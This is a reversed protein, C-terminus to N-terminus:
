YEYTLRPVGDEQWRVAHKARPIPTERIGSRDEEAWRKQRAIWRDYLEFDPVTKWVARMNTYRQLDKCRRWHRFFQEELTLHTGYHALTHPNKVYFEPILEGHIPEYVMVYPYAGLERLISVRRMDEEVTSDFGALIFSAIERRKVGANVLHAFGRRYVAEIKPSDFAFTIQRDKGNLALFKSRAILSAWEENVFRIDVGQTLSYHIKRDIVYQFQERVFDRPGALFNDDMLRVLRATPNGAIIEEFTSVPLSKNGSLEPVVCFQCGRPCGRTLFGQAYTAVGLMSDYMGYDLPSKEIDESAQKHNSWATGGITIWEPLDMDVWLPNDSSYKIGLQDLLSFVKTRNRSFVGSVRVFDVKGDRKPSYPFVVEDGRTKHWSSALMLHRNRWDTRDLDVLGVRLSFRGGLLNNDLLRNKNVNVTVIDGEEHIRNPRAM